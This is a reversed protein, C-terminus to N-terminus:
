IMDVRYDSLMQIHINFVNWYFFEVAYKVVNWHFCLLMDTLMSLTLIGQVERQKLLIKM